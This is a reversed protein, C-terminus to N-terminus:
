CLSMIEGGTRIQLVGSTRKLLVCKLFLLGCYRELFIEDSIQQKEPPWSTKKRSLRVVEPPIEKYISPSERLNSTVPHLNRFREARGSTSIERGRDEVRQPWPPAIFILSNFLLSLLIQTSFEDKLSLKASACAPARAMENASEALLFWMSTRHQAKSFLEHIMSLHLAPANPTSKKASVENFWSCTDSVMKVLLEACSPEPPAIDVDAASRATVCPSVLPTMRLLQVYSSKSIILAATRTQNTTKTAYYQMRGNGNSQLVTISCGRKTVPEQMIYASRIIWLRISGVMGSQTSYIIVYNCNIHITKM